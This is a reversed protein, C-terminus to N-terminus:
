LKRPKKSQLYRVLMLRLLTGRKVRTHITSESIESQVGFEHKKKQILDVLFGKPCRTKSAKSVTVKTSYAYAISIVCREHKETDERKKENTTGVPRGAKPVLADPVIEHQDTRPNDNPSISTLSSVESTGTDVIVESPPSTTIPLAPTGGSTNTPERKHSEVAQEGKQLSYGKIHHFWDCPPIRNETQLFGQRCSTSSWCNKGEFYRLSSQGRCM